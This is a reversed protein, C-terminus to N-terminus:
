APSSHICCIYTDTGYINYPSPVLKPLYEQCRVTSLWQLLEIGKRQRDAAAEAVTVTVTVPEPEPEPEPEIEIAKWQRKAAPEVIEVAVAAPHPHDATGSGGSYSGRVTETDSDRHRDDSEDVDGVSAAATRAADTGEGDVFDNQVAAGASEVPVVFVDGPRVGEPVEVEVETGDPTTLLIMMGAEVGDPCEVEMDVTVAECDHVLEVFSAPFFGAREPAGEVHGEWWDDNSADTVVVTEGVSITLSTDDEAEYDCTVKAPSGGTSCGGETLEVFSAPFFGARDPAGEIYGEWWDDNSTDTVVVIEGVSITISTDDEAEYDCAVQARLGVGDVSSPPPGPAPSGTSGSFPRRHRRRSLHGRFNSQLRVAAATEHAHILSLLREQSDGGAAPQGETATDPAEARVDSAPLPPARRNTRTRSQVLLRSSRQAISGARREAAIKDLRAKRANGAENAAAATTHEGRSFSSLPAPVAGAERRRAPSSPPPSDEALELELQLELAADVDSESGSEEESGGSSEGADHGASEAPDTHQTTSVFAAAAAEAALAEAEEIRWREEDPDLIAM